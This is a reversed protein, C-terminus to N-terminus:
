GGADFRGRRRGAEAVAASEHSRRSSSSLPLRSKGRMAPDLSLWEVALVAEDPKLEAPRTVPVTQKGFTGEGSLSPDIAGVPRRLLVLQTQTVPLSPPM